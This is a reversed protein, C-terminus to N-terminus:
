LEVGLQEALQTLVSKGLQTRETEVATKVIRKVKRKYSSASPKNLADVIEEVNYAFGLRQNYVCKGNRFVRDDSVDLEGVEQVIFRPENPNWTPLIVLVPKKENTM